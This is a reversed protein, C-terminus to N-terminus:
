ISQDHVRSSSPPLRRDFFHLASDGYTRSELLTLGTVSPRPVRTPTELVLTGSASLLRAVCALVETIRTEAHEEFCAYPPGLFIFEFSGAAGEQVFSLADAVAVRAQAAVGFRSITARLARVAPLANEVLVVEAAGRSLAELGVTGAGAFLDLVRAGAIGPGLVDFLSRRALARLPRTARGPPTAIARGRLIGALIRPANSKLRLRSERPAFFELM